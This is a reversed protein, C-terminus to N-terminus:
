LSPASILRLIASSRLSCSLRRSAGSQFFFPVVEIVIWQGSVRWWRQFEFYWVFDPAWAAM